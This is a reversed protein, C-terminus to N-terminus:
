TLAMRKLALLTQLLAVQQAISEESALDVGTACAPFAL